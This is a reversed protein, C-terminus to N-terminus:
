RAQVEHCAGVAIPIPPQDILDTYANRNHSVKVLGGILVDDDEERHIWRSGFGIDGEMPECGVCAIYPM